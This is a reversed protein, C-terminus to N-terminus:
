SVAREPPRKSNFETFEAPWTSQKKQLYLGREVTIGAQECVWVFFRDETMRGLSDPRKAAERYAAGMLRIDRDDFDNQSPPAAEGGSIGEGTFRDKRIATDSIDRTEAPSTAHKPRLHRTNQDSIDRTKAASIDRKKAEQSLVWAEFGVFVFSSVRGGRGGGKTRELKKQALLHKVWREVQRRSKLRARQAIEVESM